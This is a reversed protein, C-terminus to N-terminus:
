RVASAAAAFAPGPPGVESVFFEEVPQSSFGWSLEGFDGGYFRIGAERNWTTLGFPGPPEVIHDRLQLRRAVAPHMSQRDARRPIIVLAGRPAETWRADWPQFGAREAYYQWGWHGLFLVPRGMGGWRTALREAAAPYCSAWRYDTVGLAMGLVAALAVAAARRGRPVRQGSLLLLALPPQIPLFSRVAVFPGFPMVIALTGIIWAWLLPQPDAVTTPHESKVDGRAILALFPFAGLGVGVV